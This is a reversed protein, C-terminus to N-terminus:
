AELEEERQVKEEEKERTGEGSVGDRPPDANGPPEWVRRMESWIWCGDDGEDATAAHNRDPLPLASFGRGVIV